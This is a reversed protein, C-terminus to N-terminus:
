KEGGKKVHCYATVIGKGNIWSTIGVIPVHKETRPCWEKLACDYCIVASEVLVSVQNKM